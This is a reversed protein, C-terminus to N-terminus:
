VDLRELAKLYGETYTPFQAVTDRLIALPIQAKIALAAYHIWESALPAVAWAGVLVGRTRDAIVGLEGRADTEYTWPRAIADPLEIQAAVVDGGAERAQAETMGVAAVEPDCFVVRPIASYDAHVHEGLIDGSAVRGQYMAVHTFPMAGTVDGIAWVGEAARCRDDVDIGDPGPGLGIADLGLAEVRPQRGAALVLERCALESGDALLVARYGDRRSVSTPDAGLHVRVGDGSLAKRVVESVRPEERALLRTSTELLEVEAGLRRMLQALEIGVPGGGLVVVSDPVETLTTAERNTWYGAAELGPIAPIRPRSGTAIVIREARLLEDGAQVEGHGRLLGRAKIVDVGRQEYSDIEDADDLHRIMYDRYAAIEDWRREPESIGPARAAECSVEPPRLLTKSPICAWYACEGGVLEQEILATKMGRDALQTAVVEGGPGAGLIVADYSAAQDM